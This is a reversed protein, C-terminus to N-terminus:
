FQVTWLDDNMDKLCEIDLTMKTRNFKFTGELYQKTGNDYVDMKALINHTGDENPKIIIEKALQLNIM